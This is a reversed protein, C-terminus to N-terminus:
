WRRHVNRWGAWDVEKLDGWDSVFFYFFRLVFSFICFQSFGWGEAEDVKKLIEGISKLTLIGCSPVVTFYSPIPSRLKTRMKRGTFTSPSRVAAIGPALHVRLRWFRKELRALDKSPIFCAKDLPGQSSLSLDWPRLYGIDGSIKESFPEVWRM